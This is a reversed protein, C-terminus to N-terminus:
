TGELDRLNICDDPDDVNYGRELLGDILYRKDGITEVSLTRTSVDLKEIAALMLDIVTGLEDERFLGQRRWKKASGDFRLAEVWYTAGMPVPSCAALARYGQLDVDAVIPLFDVDSDVPADIVRSQEAPASPSNRKKVGNM